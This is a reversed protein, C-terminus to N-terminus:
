RLALDAHDRFVKILLLEGEGVTVCATRGPEVENSTAYQNEPGIEAGSLNYKAGTITVARSPGFMNLLSFFQFSGDIYSPEKATVTMESYDDLAVARAGAKHLKYLLSVNVLSHDMRGGTAGVILFDRYGRRLAESAAYSTDTEDKETPLLITEIDKLQLDRGSTQPNDYSDFDGIILGPLIRGSGSQLKPLHKLGCDCFVIWDDERLHSRINDYDGIPAGGVIVCRRKTGATM